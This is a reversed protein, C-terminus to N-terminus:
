EVVDLFLESGTRMGVAIPLGQFSQEMELEEDRWGEGVVELGGGLDFTWEGGGEARYSSLETHLLDGFIGAVDQPEATARATVKLELRDGRHHMLEYREVAELEIGQRVEHRRVEWIAREGVPERPLHVTPEGLARAVSQRMDKNSGRGGGDLSSHLILGRPDVWSAGRLGGLGEVLRRQEPNGLKGTSSSALVEVGTVKWSWEFSGDPLVDKVKGRVELTSELHTDSLTETVASARVQDRTTMRFRRTVGAEPGLRLAERPEIGRTILAVEPPRVEGFSGDVDYDGTEEAPAFLWIGLKFTAVFAFTGLIM